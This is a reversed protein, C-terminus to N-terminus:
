RWLDTVRVGLRALLDRLLPLSLGIVNGADGDIGDVFVAAQGDITFPGAVQLAEDTRSYAAIEDDDPTGFRVTTAAVASVQTGTATDILCHGTLLTGERGRWTRWREVVAAADPPKGYVRGDHVLLSDCGLVLDGSRGAAVTEAKRVALLEVLERPDDVQVSDEDFGSVAVEADIGADTLLRRRAPSASALVLSRTPM